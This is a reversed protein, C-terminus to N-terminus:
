VHTQVSPITWALWDEYWLSRELRRWTGFPLARENAEKTVPVIWTAWLSSRSAPWNLCFGVMERSTRTFSLGEPPWSFRMCIVKTTSSMLSLGGVHVLNVKLYERAPHSGEETTRLRTGERVPILSDHADPVPRWFTLWCVQPTWNPQYTKRERDKKIEREKQREKENSGKEM